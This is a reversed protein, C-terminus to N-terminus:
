FGRSFEQKPLKRPSFRYANEIRSRNDGNLVQIIAEAFGM